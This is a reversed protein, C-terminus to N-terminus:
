RTVAIDVDDVDWAGGAADAAAAAATFLQVARRVGRATHQGCVRRNVIRLLLWM